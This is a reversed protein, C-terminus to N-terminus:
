RNNNAPRTLLWARNFRAIRVERGKTVNQQWVAIM